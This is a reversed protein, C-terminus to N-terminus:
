ERPWRLGWPRAKSRPSYAVTVSAITLDDRQPNTVRIRIEGPRFEVRRVDFEDAPPPNQGILEILSSGTAAFAGVVLALILIPALAWLRWGLGRDLEEARAETM